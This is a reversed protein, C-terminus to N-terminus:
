EFMWSVMPYFIGLAKRANERRRAERERLKEVNTELRVREEVWRTKEELLREISERLTNERDQYRVLATRTEHLEATLKSTTDAMQHFMEDHILGDRDVHAELARAPIVWTQNVKEAAIKGSKVWKRITHPSMGILRAAENISVKDKM